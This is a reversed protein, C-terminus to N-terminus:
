PTEQLFTKRYSIHKDEQYGGTKASRIKIAKKDNTQKTDSQQEEPTCLFHCCPFGDPGDMSSSQELVTIERDKM